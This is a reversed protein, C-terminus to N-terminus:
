LVDPDGQLVGCYIEFHPKKGVISAGREVRLM